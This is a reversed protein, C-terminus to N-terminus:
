EGTLFDDIEDVVAQEAAKTTAASLRESGTRGKLIKKSLAVRDKLEKTRRDYWSNAAKQLDDLRRDREQASAM